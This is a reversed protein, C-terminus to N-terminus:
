APMWRHAFLHYILVLFAVFCVSGWILNSWQIFRITEYTSSVEDVPNSLFRWAFSAAFCVTSVELTANDMSFPGKAVGIGFLAIGIMLLFDPPQKVKDIIDGIGSFIGGESM